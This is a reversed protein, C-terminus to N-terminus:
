SSDGPLLGAQDGPNWSWFGWVAWGQGRWCPFGLRGAPMRRLDGARLRVSPRYWRSVFPVGVSAPWPGPLLRRGFQGYSRALPLRGPRSRWPHASALRGGLRDTLLGPIRGPQGAPGAHGLGVSVQRQTGARAADADYASVSGFVAFCFAFAGTGLLLQLPNGSARDSM